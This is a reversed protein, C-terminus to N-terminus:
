NKMFITWCATFNFSNNILYQIGDGLNEELM